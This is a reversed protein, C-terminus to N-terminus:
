YLTLYICSLNVILVRDRQGPDSRGAKAYVSGLVWKWHPFVDVARQIAEIAEDHRTEVCLRLSAYVCLRGPGQSKAAERRPTSDREELSQGWRGM